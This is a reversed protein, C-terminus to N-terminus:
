KPTRTMAEPRVVLGFAFTVVAEGGVKGFAALITLAALSALAILDHRQM